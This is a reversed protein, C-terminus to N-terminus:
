PKARKLFFTEHKDRVRGRHSTLGPRKEQHQAEPCAQLTPATGMKQILFSLNLEKVLM